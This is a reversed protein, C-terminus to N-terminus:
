DTGIEFPRVVATLEGGPVYGVISFAYRGSPLSLDLRAAREPGDTVPPAGLVWRFRDDPELRRAATGAGQELLRWRDSSPTGTPSPGGTKRRAALTWWDAGTDFPLATGNHLELVPRGADSRRASLRLGEGGATAACIYVEANSPLAPCPSGDRPTALQAGAPGTRVPAPTLSASEIDSDPSGSCGATCGVLGAVAALLHRRRM